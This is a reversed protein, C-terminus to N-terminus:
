ESGQQRECRFRSVDVIACDITTCDININPIEISIGISSHVFISNYQSGSGISAAIQGTSPQASSM